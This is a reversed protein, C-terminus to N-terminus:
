YLPLWCFKLLSTSDKSYKTPLMSM